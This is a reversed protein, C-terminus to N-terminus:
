TIHLRYDLLFNLNIRLYFKFYGANAEERKTRIDFEVCLYAQSFSLAVSILSGLVKRIFSIYM